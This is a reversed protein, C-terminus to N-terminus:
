LHLKGMMSGHPKGDRYEGSRMYHLYLSNRCVVFMGTLYDAGSCIQSTGPKFYQGASQIYPSLSGTIIRLSDLCTGPYWKLDPRSWKRRYVEWNLIYLVVVRVNLVIYDYSFPEYFVLLICNKWWRCIPQFAEAFTWSCKLHNWAISQRPIMFLPCIGAFHTAALHYTKMLGCSTFLPEQEM